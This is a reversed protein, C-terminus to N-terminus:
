IWRWAASCSPRKTVTPGSASNEVSVPISPQEVCFIVLGRPRRPISIRFIRVELLRFCPESDAPFDFVSNVAMDEHVNVLIGAMDGGDEAVEDGSCLIRNIQL